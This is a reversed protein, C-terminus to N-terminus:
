AQKKGTGATKRAIARFTQFKNNNCRWCQEKQEANGQSNM